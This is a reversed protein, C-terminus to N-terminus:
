NVLEKRKDKPLRAQLWKMTLQQKEKKIFSHNTVVGDNEMKTRGLLNAGNKNKKSIVGGSLSEINERIELYEM